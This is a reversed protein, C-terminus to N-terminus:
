RKKFELTGNGMEHKPAVELAKTLLKYDMIFAKNNEM